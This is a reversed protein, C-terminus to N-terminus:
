RAKKQGNPSTGTSINAAVANAPVANSKTAAHRYTGLKGFSYYPVYRDPSVTDVAIPDARDTCDLIWWRGDCRWYIWAHSTRLSKEAKGIVFLAGADALNDYLWLAKSKCDGSHQVETLKPPDPRYPDRSVYEFSHGVKMLHCAKAMSIGHPELSAIVSRVSGFYRDYPTSSTPQMELERGGPPLPFSARLFPQDEDSERLPVDHRFNARRFKADTASPAAPDQAAMAPLAVLALLTSLDRPRM